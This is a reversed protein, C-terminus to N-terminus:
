AALKEIQEEAKARSADPDIALRDATVVQVDTIGIFGLVHRLWPTAFDIPGGVETGGSAVVVIARKGRLLGEPGDESYRFTVGARAVHDVWTKLATPVGFNYIPLAILLTDAAEIEAILTDSLALAARQDETRAEAATFNAGIWAADIQPLSDALDRRIVQTPALRNVVRDALERSVSGDTRASADIRLLTRTM